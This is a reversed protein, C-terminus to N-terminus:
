AHRIGPWLFRLIASAVSWWSCPLLALLAVMTQKLVSM